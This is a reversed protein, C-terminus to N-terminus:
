EKRGNTNRKRTLSMLARRGQEVDCVNYKRAGRRIAKVTRSSTPTGKEGLWVVHRSQSLREHARILYIRIFHTCFWMRLLHTCFDWSLHCKRFMDFLIYLPVWISSTPNKYFTTNTRTINTGKQLCFRLLKFRTEASCNYLYYLIYLCSWILQRNNKNKKTNMTWEEIKNNLCIWSQTTKYIINTYDIRVTFIAPM